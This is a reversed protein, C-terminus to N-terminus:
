DRRDVMVNGDVHRRVVLSLAPSQLVFGERSTHLREVSGTLRRLFKGTMREASGSTRPSVAPMTAESGSVAGLDM